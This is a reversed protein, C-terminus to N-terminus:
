LLDVLGRKASIVGIVQSGFDLFDGHRTIVLDVEESHIGLLREINTSGLALAEEKSLKGGMAIATWAVDFPLDRAFATEEVGIGVVVNHSLLAAIASESTLPPGPLIRREEWYKPSPRSPTLIVGIQAEGLERALLHAETAGTITMQISKKHELEVEKKLLILTAIVDASHAEIVLPLTGEIVQGTWYGIAGKPPKMLLRRLAAIETSVSSHHSRRISIHIAVVDEIIAGKEMKNMAGTSVQVSLGAIFGKHAPVSIASTVGARYALLADRTGFELGDNAHLISTDGGLINPVPQLLPDIVDNTSIDSCLDQLCLSSDFSVFAPAISGGHLNVVSVEGSTVSLCSEHLGFCLLKGSASVVATLPGDDSTPILQKVGTLTGRYISSVNTFVVTTSIKQPQLPPLGDYDLTEQAEKDFNPVAPLKQFRDSKPSVGASLQPIGDIIVQSPTAGLALPHSDWIVLDADWGQKIYGVRHGMGMVEAPMTTVSALALNPPFGYFFAKQAEFLLYRADLGSSRHSQMSVNFGDQALFRPSFESARYQERRKRGNTVSLALAPPKGYTRNLVEPVLYADSASHIVAIPFRFEQSLRVISDLDVAEDCHVHVKARGRLVEMLLEWEYSEPFDTLASQNHVSGTRCFTDQKRVNERARMYADRLAWMNDMRTNKFEKDPKEGCAHVVYRWGSPESVAQDNVRLAPELLMSTPSHEPTDRLKIVYGEGGIANIFSPVVLATTAGGAISLLYADDRTHLADVSRLWPQVVGHVSSADSDGHLQPSPLIGHQSRINILGPTIWAGKADIVIIEATHAVTVSRGVRRIIGKDLLVDGIIIETGNKDGTWLKGGKILIPKTGTVFRDSHSRRQFDKTDRAETELGACRTVSAPSPTRQVGSWSFFTKVSSLRDRACFFLLAAFIWVQTWRM